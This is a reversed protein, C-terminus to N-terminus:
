RPPTALRAPPPQRAPLGGRLATDRRLLRRLRLRRQYRSAGRREAASGCRADRVRRRSRRRVSLRRRRWLRIPGGLLCGVRRGLRLAWRRRAAGSRSICLGGGATGRWRLRAPCRRRLRRSSRARRGHIDAVLGGALAAATRRRLRRSATPSTLVAWAACPRLWGLGRRGVHLFELLRASRLRHGQNSASAGPSFM